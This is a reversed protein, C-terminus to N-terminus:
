KMGTLTIGEIFRRQAFVYVILIPLVAVFSAASLPGLDVGSRGRFQSLGLPLTYLEPRDLVVLPWLFNDWQYTFTFIALAAMAATSLPLIIRLYIGLESAGDIRAADMLETPINSIQQRMLFIGFPSFVIPVILALYNNRWGWDAVMSFLPILTVSFPVVLMSIVFGFIINKFRFEFKAFIYGALSSTFLTIITVVFVIFLSNRFFVPMSGVTLTTLGKWNDLTFTQPWWTPPIAVGERKNKFSSIFMWYFPGIMAISGIGLVIWLVVRELNLRTWRWRDNKHVSISIKETASHDSIAEM